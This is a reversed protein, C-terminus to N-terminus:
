IELSNIKINILNMEWNIYPSFHGNIFGSEKKM